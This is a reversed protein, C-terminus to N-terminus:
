NINYFSENQTLTFEFAVFFNYEKKKKPHFAPGLGFFYVNVTRPRVHRVSNALFDLSICLPLRDFFSVGLPLNHAQKAMGDACSNAERYLHSNEINGDCEELFSRVANVISAHMHSRKVGQSIFHYVCISDLELVVNRFGTLMGICLGWYAGWIEALTISYAGLNM